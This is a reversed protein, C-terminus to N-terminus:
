ILANTTQLEEQAKGYLDLSVGLNEADEASITLVYRENDLELYDVLVKNAEAVTKCQVISRSQTSVLDLSDDKSCSSFTISMLTIGLGALLFSNFKKM